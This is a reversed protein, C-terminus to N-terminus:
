EFGWIWCSRKCRLEDLVTESSQKIIVLFAKRGGLSV